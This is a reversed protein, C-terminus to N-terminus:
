VKTLMAPGVTNIHFTSLLSESTVNELQTHEYCVVGANNILLNLGNDKVIQKVKDAAHDIDKQNTIESTFINQM